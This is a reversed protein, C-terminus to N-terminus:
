RSRVLRSQQWYPTLYIRCKWFKKVNQRVVNQAVVDFRLVALAISITLVGNKQNTMKWGLRV